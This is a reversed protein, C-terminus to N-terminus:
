DTEANDTKVNATKPDFLPGPILKGTQSILGHSVANVINKTIYRNRHADYLFMNVQIPEDGRMKIWQTMRNRGEHSYVTGPNSFNGDRWEAPEKIHLVPYAIAGGGIMHQVVKPNATLDTLPHALKLFTSPRMKVSLGFYDIDIANPTEGWGRPDLVAEEVQEFIFENARM